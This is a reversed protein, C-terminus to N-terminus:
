GRSVGTMKEREGERPARAAFGAPVARWREPWRREGRAARAGNDAVKGPIGPKGRDQRGARRAMVSTGSIVGADSFGPFGAFIGKGREGLKGLIEGLKKFGKEKKKRKGKGRNGKKRGKRKGIKKRREKEEKRKRKGEKGKEKRGGKPVAGRSGVTRGDRCAV